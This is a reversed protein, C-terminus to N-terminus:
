GCERLQLGGQVAYQTMKHQVAVAQSGYLVCQSTVASSGGGSLALESLSQRHLRGYVHAVLLGSHLLM